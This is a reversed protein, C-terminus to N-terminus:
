RRQGLKGMLVLGTSTRSFSSYLTRTSDGSRLAVLGKKSRAASRLSSRLRPAVAPYRDKARLIPLVWLEGFISGRVAYDQPVRFRFFPVAFRRGEVNADVTNSPSVYCGHTTGPEPLM